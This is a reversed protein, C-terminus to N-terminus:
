CRELKEFPFVSNEIKLTFDAGREINTVFIYGDRLEIMYNNDKDEYKEYTHEPRLFEPPVPFARRDGQGYLVLWGLKLIAREVARNEIEFRVPIQM